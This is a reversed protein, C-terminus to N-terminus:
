TLDIQGVEPVLKHDFPNLKLVKTAFSSHEFAVKATTLEEEIQWCTVGPENAPAVAEPDGAIAGHIPVASSSTQYWNTADLGNKVTENCFMTPEVVFKFKATYEPLQPVNACNNQLAALEVLPTTFPSVMPCVYKM